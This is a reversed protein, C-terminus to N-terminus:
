KSKPNILGCDLHYCYLTPFRKVFIERIWRVTDVCCPLLFKCDKAVLLQFCLINLNRLGQSCARADFSFLVLM